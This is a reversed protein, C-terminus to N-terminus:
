AGIISNVYKSGYEQWRLEEILFLSQKLQPVLALKVLLKIFAAAPGM